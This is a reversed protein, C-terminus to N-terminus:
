PKTLKLIRRIEAGEIFEDQILEAAIMMEIFYDVHIQYIPHRNLVYTEIEHFELGDKNKGLMKLVGKMTIGLRQSEELKEQTM